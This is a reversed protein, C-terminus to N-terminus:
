GGVWNGNEDYDISREWGAANWIADFSSRLIKAADLEWGEVVIEPILLVDRDIPRGPVDSPFFRMPDVAMRYEEVGILALFVLVPPEIGVDRLLATYRPLIEIIEREFSISPILKREDNFLRTTAAEVVGNRFVQVYTDDAYALAGDFNYRRNRDMTAIAEFNDSDYVERIDFIARPDAISYPILHLALRAHGSLTSPMDGAMIASIRDLRFNRIKESLTESFTFAARLESLDFPYKGSSNRSFFRESGRIGYKVMHPGSWTRPIYIILVIRANSLRISHISIGLIRQEIGDRILNDLRLKIADIDDVEVGCVETAIGAEEKIGYFIYGGIANAFSCVDALFEKKDKDTNGPLCEKYELTKGEAVASDVLSQLDREDIETIPKHIPV